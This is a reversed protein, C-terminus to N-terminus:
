TVSGELWLPAVILLLNHLSAPVAGFRFVHKEESSFYGKSSVGGGGSFGCDRQTELM